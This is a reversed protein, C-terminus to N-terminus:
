WTAAALEVPVELREVSALAMGPPAAVDGMAKLAADCVEILEPTVLADIPAGAPTAGL